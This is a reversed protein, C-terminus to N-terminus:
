FVRFGMAWIDFVAVATAATAFTVDISGDTIFVVGHTTNAGIDTDGVLTIQTTESNLNFTGMYDDAGAALENTQTASVNGIDATCAGGEATTVRAGVCILHFGAPVQFVELIDSAAFGTSPITLADGSTDVFPQAAIL